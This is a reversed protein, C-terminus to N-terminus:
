LQYFIELNEYIRCHMRDQHRFTDKIMESRLNISKKPNNNASYPLM